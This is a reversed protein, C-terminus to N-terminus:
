KNSISTSVMMSAGHPSVQLYPNQTAIKLNCPRIYIYMHLYIYM